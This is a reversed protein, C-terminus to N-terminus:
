TGDTAGEEQEALMRTGSAGGHQRETLFNATPIVGACEKWKMSMNGAVVISALCMQLIHNGSLPNLISFGKAVPIRVLGCAPSDCCHLLLKPTAFLIAGLLRRLNNRVNVSNDCENLSM